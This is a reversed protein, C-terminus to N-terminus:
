ALNTKKAFVDWWKDKTTPYIREVVFGNAKVAARLEDATYFSFYRQIEKGFKEEGVLEEGAGQKVKIFLTGEAKLVNYISKLVPGLHAKPIHHLSANAWVGDFSTEPFELKEFDMIKYDIRPEIERAKEILSNSIDVGVVACGHTFLYRSDRGGGTGLDLVRSTHPLLELFSDLAQQVDPTEDIVGKDREVYENAIRNYSNKTAEKYDMPAIM